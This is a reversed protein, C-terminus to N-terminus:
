RHLLRNKFMESVFEVLDLKVSCRYLMNVPFLKLGQGRKMHTNGTFCLIDFVKMIREEEANMQSREIRGKGVYNYRNYNGEKYVRYKNIQSHNTIMGIGMIINTDNNMELVYVIADVPIDRSIPDPSCYICKIQKHTDRYRSNESWTQNNFRSTLLFHRLNQKYDSILRRQTLTQLYNKPVTQFPENEPSEMKQETIYEVIM